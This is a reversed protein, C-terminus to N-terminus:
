WGRTGCGLVGDEDTRTDVLSTCAATRHAATVSVSLSLLLLLTDWLHLAMNISGSTTTLDM